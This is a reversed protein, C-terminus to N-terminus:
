AQEYDDINEENEENEDSYKDDELEYELFQKQNIKNGFYQKGKTINKVKDKKGKKKNEKINVLIDKWNIPSDINNIKNIKLSFKNELYEVFYKIRNSHNYKDNIFVFLECEFKKTIFFIKFCCSKSKTYYSFCLHNYNKFHFLYNIPNNEDFTFPSLYEEYQKFIINDDSDTVEFYSDSIIQIKKTPIESYFLYEAENDFNYKIIENKEINNQNADKAIFFIVFPFKLNLYQKILEEFKKDNLSSLGNYRILLGRKNSLEVNKTMMEKYNNSNLITLEEIKLNKFLFSLGLYIQKQNIFFYNIFPINLTIPINIITKTIVAENIMEIIPHLNSNYSYFSSGFTIQKINNKNLLNLYNEIASIINTTKPPNKYIFYLENININKNIIPIQNQFYEKDDIICYLIKIEKNYINLNRLNKNIFTGDKYKNNKSPLLVLQFNENKERENFTIDILSSIPPKSLTKNDNIRELFNNSEYVLFSYDFPDYKNRLIYEEFNKKEQIEIDKITRLNKRYRTFLLILNINDNLEKSFKNSKTVESFTSNLVDKLIKDKDILYLFKYPEGKLFSFINKVILPKHRINQLISNYDSKSELKKTTNNEKM